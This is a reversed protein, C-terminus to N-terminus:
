KEQVSKVLGFDAIKRREFTVKDSEFYKNNKVNTSDIKSHGTIYHNHQFLLPLSITKNLIRGVEALEEDAYFHKYAPHYIHGFREYFKRDMIPLTMIFPQIGDATKVIYDEDGALLTRLSEDWRAPCDFDDSSQILLDGTAQGAGLNGQVVM